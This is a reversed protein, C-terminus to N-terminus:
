FLSEADLEFDTGISFSHIVCDKLEIKNEILSEQVKSLLEEPRSKGLSLGARTAFTPRLESINKQDYQVGTNKYTLFGKRSYSLNLEPFFVELEKKLLKENGIVYCFFIFQRM